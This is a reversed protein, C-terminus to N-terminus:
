QKGEVVRKRQWSCRECEFRKFYQRVLVNMQTSPSGGLYVGDAEGGLYPWDLLLCAPIVTRGHYLTIALLVWNVRSYLVIESFGGGYMTACGESDLM